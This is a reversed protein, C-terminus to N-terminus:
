NPQPVPTDGFLSSYVRAIGTMPEFEVWAAAASGYPGMALVVSEAYANPAPTLLVPTAFGGAPTFRSARIVRNTQSVEDQWVALANGSADFAIKASLSAVTVVPTSWGGSPTYYSYYESFGPGNRQGWIAIANGDADGAVQPYYAASDTTVTLTTATAWGTGPVYQRTYVGQTSNTVQQSWIARVEGNLSLGISYESLSENSAELLVSSEWAGQTYRNAWLDYTGLAQDSNGWLATANGSPDMAVRVDGTNGTATEIRAAAGLTGGAPLVRAWVAYDTGQHNVWAVVVDGAANAAVQPAFNETGLGPVSLQVRGSWGSGVTYTNMWTDTRTGDSQSWVAYAHGQADAAISVGGADGTDVTELLVPTGWGSTGFRNAWVNARSGTYEIWAAIVSGDSLTALRLDSASYMGNSAIGAAEWTGDRTTFSVSLASAPAEGNTGLLGTDATVTYTTLLSLPSTPEVTVTSGAASLTAPVTQTGRKFTVHSGVTGANLPVSYTVSPQVSRAVGTAGSGPTSSAVTMPTTVCNVAINTVNANATGSGNTVTCVQAPASPQTSVTLNYSGGANLRGALTFAGNSSVGINTSGNALVLGTGALGSVAGGVTYTPAPSDDGCGALATGVAVMLCLSSLSSKM